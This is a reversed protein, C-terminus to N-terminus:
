FIASYPLKHQEGQSGHGSPGFGGRGAIKRGIPAPKKMKMKAKPRSGEIDFLVFVYAASHERDYGTLKSHQGRFLRFRGKAGSALRSLCSKVEIVAGSERRADYWDATLFSNYDYAAAALEEALEGTDSQLRRRESRSLTETKM